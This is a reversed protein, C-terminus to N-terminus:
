RLFEKLEWSIFGEGGPGLSSYASSQNSYESNQAVSELKETKYEPNRSTYVTNKTAPFAPMTEHFCIKYYHKDDPWYLLVRAEKVHRIYEELCINHETMYKSHPIGTYRLHWPEYVIGTTDSKDKPYRIIFGYQDCNNQLWIGAETGAFHTDLRGNVSVDVALGLQHESAGPMAVSQFNKTFTHSKAAFLAQQYGYSRYASQMRLNKIGAAIMDEHMKTFAEGAKPHILYGNLQSLEEPRYSPELLFDSNVLWLTKTDVSVHNTHHVHTHHLHHVHAHNSHHVHAHNPHHVSTNNTQNAAQAHNPNIAFFLILVIFVLAIRNGQKKWVFNMEECM